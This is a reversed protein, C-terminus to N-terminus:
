ISNSPIQSLRLKQFKAKLDGREGPGHIWLCFREYRRALLNKPIKGVRCEPESALDVFM